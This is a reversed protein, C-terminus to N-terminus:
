QIEYKGKIETNQMNLIAKQYQPQLFYHGSIFSQTETQEIIRINADDRGKKLADLGGNCKQSALDKDGVINYVLHALDKTAICTTGCTILIVTTRYEPLLRKLAKVMVYGGNSFAIHLQKRNPKNSRLIIQANTELLMKVYHIKREM